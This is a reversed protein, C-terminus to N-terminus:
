AERFPPPGATDSPAGSSGSTEPDDEAKPLGGQFTEPLDDDAWNFAAVVVNPTIPDPPTDKATDCCYRYLAEASAGNRLPATLLEAWTDLGADKAIRDLDSLPVDDLRVVHGGPTTVAFPM